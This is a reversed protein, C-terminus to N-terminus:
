VKSQKCYFNTKFYIIIGPRAKIAGFIASPPKINYDTMNIAESGEFQLNGDELKLTNVQMIVQRCIGALTLYGKLQICEEGPNVQRIKVPVDIRFIIEPNAAAKLARYTKNDLATGLSSKISIVKMKILLSYLDMAADENLGVVMMGAVSGVTDKWNRLNSTGQITVAYGGSLTYTDRVRVAVGTWSFNLFLFLICRNM